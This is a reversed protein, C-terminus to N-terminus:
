WGRGHADDWKDVANLAGFEDDIGLEIKAQLATVLLTRDMLKEDNCIWDLVEIMEDTPEMDEGCFAVLAEVAAIREISSVKRDAAVNLAAELVRPDAVVASATGLLRWMESRLVSQHRSRSYPGQVFSIAEDMLRRLCQFRDVMERDKDLDAVEPWEEIDQMYLSLGNVAHRSLSAVFETLERAMFQGGEGRYQLISKWFTLLDDMMAPDTLVVPLHRYLSQCLKSMVSFRENLSVKDLLKCQAQKLTKQFSKNSMPVLYSRDALVVQYM